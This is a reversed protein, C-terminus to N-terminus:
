MFADLSQLPNHSRNESTSSSYLPFVKESFQDVLYPSIKVGPYEHLSYANNPLLQKAGGLPMVNQPLVGYTALRFKAARCFLGNSRFPERLEANIEELTASYLSM